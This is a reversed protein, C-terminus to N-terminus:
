TFGYRALHEGIVREIKVLDHRTLGKQWALDANRIAFREISREFKQTFPLQCFEAVKRLQLVPERAFSDYRIETICLNTLEKAEQEFIDLLRKWVIAALVAPSRGAEEYEDRYEEPMPGWWWSEMTGDWWPVRMMSYAVARGDRIIHVFHPNPLISRWFRFRPFGTHKLALRSRGHSSIVRRHYDQVVRVVSPPIESEDIERPVQFLGDSCRRLTRLSEAPRPVSRRVISEPNCRIGLPHLRSFVSLGPFEPYREVLNSVWALDPHAGLVNFFITTGSRGTGCVCIADSLRDRRNQKM